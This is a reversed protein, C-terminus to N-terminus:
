ECVCAITDLTLIRLSCPALCSESLTYTLARESRCDAAPAAPMSDITDACGSLGQWEQVHLISLARPSNGLMTWQDYVYAGECNPVPRNTEAHFAREPTLRVRPSVLATRDSDPVPADIAGEEVLVGVDGMTGTPRIPSCGDEDTKISLEYLGSGLEEAVHAHTCGVCLVFVAFSLPKSMISDTLRAERAGDFFRRM